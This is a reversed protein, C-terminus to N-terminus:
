AAGGGYLRKWEAEASARAEAAEPSGVVPPWGPHPDGRYCFSPRRDEWVGWPKVYYQVRTQAVQRSPMVAVPEKDRAVRDLLDADAAARRSMKKLQALSM